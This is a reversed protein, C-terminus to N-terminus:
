TNESLKESGTVAKLLMVTGTSYQYVEVPRNYLECIAQMEVNNGHCNDLRKRSLYLNFDETVYAKFFDKNKAQFM